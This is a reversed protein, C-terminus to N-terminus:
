ILTMSKKAPDVESLVGEYRVLAATILSIKSGLLNKSQM